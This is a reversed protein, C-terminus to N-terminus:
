GTERPTRASTLYKEILHRTYEDDLDGDTPLPGDPRLAGRLQSFPTVQRRRRSPAKSTTHRLERLLEEVLQFQESVPLRKAASIIERYGM